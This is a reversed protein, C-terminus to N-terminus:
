RRKRASAAVVREAEDLLALRGKTAIISGRFALYLFKDPDKRKAASESELWKLWKTLEQRAKKILATQERGPLAGMFRIRLRLADVPLATAIPPPTPGIWRRLTKLGAPTMTYMLGERRGTAHRESRILGRHYLRKVLPYITGASTAWHPSPSKLFIQRISYATQPGQSWLMGLVVGELESLREM